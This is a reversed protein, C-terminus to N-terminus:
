GALQLAAQVQVGAFLDDECGRGGNVQSYARYYTESGFIAQKQAYSLSLLGEYGPLQSRHRMVADLVQETYASTDLQTTIAWNQWPSARREVGDIQMVLDGFVAQYAAMEASFAARYYLKDVRHPLGGAPYTSDAAAVLAAMTFQSIAIHDPHGYFGSPDFTLVVQPRIRRVQEVIEAIVHQPDAQDLDGDMYDLLIVERLGLVEAAEWLEWQRTRGLVYGGPYADAPGFWGRQGRTATIVYTEVGEAAYRALAGGFGLSEDDPHALVCLLRKKDM